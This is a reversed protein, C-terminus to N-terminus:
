ISRAARQRETVGYSFIAKASAVCLAEQFCCPLRALSRVILCHKCPSTQQGFATDFSLSGLAGNWKRLKWNHSKGWKFLSGARSKSAARLLSPELMFDSVLIDKLSLWDGGSFLRPSFDQHACSFCRSSNVVSTAWSPTNKLGSETKMMNNSHLYIFSSVAVGLSPLSFEYLILWDLTPLMHSKRRDSFLM